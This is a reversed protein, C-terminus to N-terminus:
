DFQQSFCKPSRRFVFDFDQLPMEKSSFREKAQKHNIMHDSLPSRQLSFLIIAQTVRLARDVFRYSMMQLANSAPCSLNFEGFSRININHFIINQTRRHMLVDCM